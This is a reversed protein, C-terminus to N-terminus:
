WPARDIKEMLADYRQRLAEQMGAKKAEGCGGAAKLKALFDRELREKARAYSGEPFLDDEVQLVTMRFKGVLAKNLNNTYRAAPDGRCRANYLDREAAAAVAEVLLRETEPDLLSAARITVCTAATLALVLLIQTRHMSSTARPRDM